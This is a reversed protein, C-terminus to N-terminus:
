IPTRGRKAKVSRVGQDEFKPWLRKLNFGRLCLGSAKRALMCSVREM